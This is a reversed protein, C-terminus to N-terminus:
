EYIFNMFKKNSLEIIKQNFFNIINKIKNDDLCLNLNQNEIKIILESTDLELINELIAKDIKYIDIQYDIINCSNKSLNIKINSELFLNNLNEKKFENLYFEQAIDNKVNMFFIFEELFDQDVNKIRFNQNRIKNIINNYYSPNNNKLKNYTKKILVIEVLDNNLGLNINNSKKITNLQKVDQSTILVDDNNYIIEYNSYSYSYKFLLFIFFLIKIVM